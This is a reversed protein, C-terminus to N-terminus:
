TSHVAVVVRHCYLLISGSAEISVHKPAEEFCTLLGQSPVVLLWTDGQQISDPSVGFLVAETVGLEGKDGGEEVASGAHWWRSPPAAQPWCDARWSSCRMCVKEQENHSQATRVRKIPDPLEREGGSCGRKQRPNADEGQQRGVCFLDTQIIVHECM